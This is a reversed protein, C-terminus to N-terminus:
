FIMELFKKWLFLVVPFCFLSFVITAIGSKYKLTSHEKTAVNLMRVGLIIYFICAFAMIFFPASAAVLMIVGWFGLM